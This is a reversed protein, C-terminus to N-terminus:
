ARDKRGHGVTIPPLWSTDLVVDRCGEFFVEAVAQESFRYYDGPENHVKFCVTLSTFLLEPGTRGRIRGTLRQLLHNAYSPVGIVLLGGPELVRKMEAVSKWYCRDHELVANCLVCDFRGDEFMSLDNANAELIPFRPHRGPILNVGIKEAAHLCPLALLSGPNPVAGIELVREVRSRGLIAEFKRRTNRIM